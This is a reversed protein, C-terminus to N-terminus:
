GRLYRVFERIDAGMRAMGCPVAVRKSEEREACSDGCGGRGAAAELGFPLRPGPTQVNSRDIYRRLIGTIASKRRELTTPQRREYVLLSVLTAVREELLALDERGDLRDFAAQVAADSNSRVSEARVRLRQGDEGHLLATLAKPVSRWDHTIPERWGAVVQRRVDFLVMSPSGEAGRLEKQLLDSELCVIVAEAFLEHVDISDGNLAYVLSHGPDHRRGAEAPIRVAIGPKNEAAMRDLAARLLPSVPKEVPGRGTDAPRGEAPPTEGLLYGLGLVGAVSASQILFARRDNNM